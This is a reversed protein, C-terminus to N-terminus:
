EKVYMYHIEDLKEDYDVHLDHRDFYWLDTEEIFFLIGEKEYSAVVRSPTDKLFGLSFGLQVPSSGGYRANFRVTDGKNLGVEQLLWQIAHNTVVLKM